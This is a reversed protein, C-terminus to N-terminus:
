SFSFNSNPEFCLKREDIDITLVGDNLFTQGLVVVYPCTDEDTFWDLNIPRVYFYPNDTRCTNFQFTAKSITHTSITISEIDKLSLGNHSLDDWLTSTLLCGTLGTDFVAVIKRKIKSGIDNYISDPTFSIDNFKLEKIEIAYHDVFDGLPRLDFLHMVNRANTPIMSKRSLTLLKGPGDIQFSSITKNEFGLQDLLTPRPQVKETPAKNQNKVLGFLSGGSEEALQADLVGLVINTLINSKSIQISSQKWSIIGSQSGYIDITPQYGSDALVFSIERDLFALKRSLSSLLNFSYQISSDMENVFSAFESGDSIVLYPSGTDIALKFVKYPVYSLSQDLRSVVPDYSITIRLCYRGGSCKELPVTISDDDYWLDNPQQASSSSPSTDSSITSIVSSSTLSLFIRRHWELALTTLISKALM